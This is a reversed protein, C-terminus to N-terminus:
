RSAEAVETMEALHKPSLQVLQVYNGDPDLATAFLSGDRDDLEAVWGGGLDAIRGVVARADTVDINLILRGPEPNAAGVDDRSDLMVYFGGFDLIDMGPGGPTRSVKPEFATVYWDRLRAPDSSALM